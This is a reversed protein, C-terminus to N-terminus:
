GYRSQGFRRVWRRDVATNELGKRFVKAHSPPRFSVLSSIPVTRSPWSMFSSIGASLAGGHRLGNGLPFYRARHTNRWCTKGGFASSALTTLREFFGSPYIELTRIDMTIVRPNCCAWRSVM